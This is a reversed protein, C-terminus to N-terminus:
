LGELEDLLSDGDPKASARAKNTKSGGTAQAIKMRDGRLAAIAERMQEQTLMGDRSLQRWQQIKMQLEPSQASM